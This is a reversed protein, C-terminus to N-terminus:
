VGTEIKPWGRWGGNLCTTAFARLIENCYWTTCYGGLYVGCWMSIRPDKDFLLTFALARRPILLTV